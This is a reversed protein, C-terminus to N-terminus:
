QGRLRDWVKGGESIFNNYPDIVLLATVKKYDRSLFAKVVGAGIGQSGGTVIVTKQGSAV